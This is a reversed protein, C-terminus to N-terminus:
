KKTLERYIYLILFAMIGGIFLFVGAWGVVANYYNAGYLFLIISLLIIGVCAWNTRSM